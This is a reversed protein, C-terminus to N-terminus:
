FFEGYFFIVFYHPVEDNWPFRGNVELLRDYLRHAIKPHKFYQVKLMKLKPGEKFNFMSISNAKSVRKEVDFWKDLGM